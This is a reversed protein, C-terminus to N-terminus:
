REVATFLYDVIANATTAGVYQGLNTATPLYTSNTVRAVMNDNFYVELEGRPTLAFGMTFFEANAYVLGSATATSSGSGNQVTATLTGNTISLYIGQTITTSNVVGFTVVGTAATATSVRIKGFARKGLVPRFNLSPAILSGAATITALGGPGASLATTVATMSGLSTQFDEFFTQIKTPDLQGLNGLTEVNNANTIGKPFRTPAFPAKAYALRSM